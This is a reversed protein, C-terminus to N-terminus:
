GKVWSMQAIQLWQEDRLLLNGPLIYINGRNMTKNGQFIYKMNKM